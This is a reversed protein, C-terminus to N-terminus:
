ARYVQQPTNAAILREALSPAERGDITMGDAGVTEVFEPHVGFLPGGVVVALDHNCAAHRVADITKALADLRVEAGLSFGVV